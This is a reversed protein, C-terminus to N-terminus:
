VKYFIQLKDDGLVMQRALTFSTALDTEAIPSPIGDGGITIAGTLLAIEDVLGAELFSKAVEAGGEVMLSSIGSAAMDELIEPLALKGNHTEAVFLRM